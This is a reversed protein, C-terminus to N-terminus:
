FQMWIWGFAIFYLVYHWWAGYWKPHSGFIGPVGNTPPFEATVMGSNADNSVATAGTVTFFDKAVGSVTFGPKAVLAITATYNTSAAFAGSVAPSWTVTGTFQDTAIIATVPPLGRTPPIVGPIAKIDVTVAPGTASFVATITDSGAAYTVATAGAITFFDAPVGVLTYGPKATLKIAATYGTNAAFSGSVTPSWTVTGTYQASATIAAAPKAGSAPATVGGIDAASITAATAPFVATITDSGATYAVTAAGAVVFFNEEVGTLTYGAKATLVITATYSTSSLFTAADPSWAVTGTYQATETIATVPAAGTVPATVGVIAKINVAAEASATTAMLATLGLALMAALLISLAKKM